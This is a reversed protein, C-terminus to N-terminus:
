RGWSMLLATAIMLGLLAYLLWRVRAARRQEAELVKLRNVASGVEQLASDYKAAFVASGAPGAAEAAAVRRELSPRTIDQPLVDYGCAPCRMLDLQIASSCNPCTM